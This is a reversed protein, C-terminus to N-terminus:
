PLPLRARMTISESRTVYGLHENLRRMDDNGRQTWTCVEHIGNVAAFALATRKLASAVGRGRWDRRVATLANEARGTVDADRVLGSIGIVEEGALAVFTAEPWRLWYREWQELSVEVPADLALDAFAQLALPDYAERWLEPRKAVSVIRVGEPASPAPEDGLARVQEVERDVEQFGFRGAFARSGSDVVTTRAVTFGLEVLHDVLARLLLTGVGRRRAAPLVRPVLFGAPPMDSRGAVGSGVVEGDAEALLWLTEGTAAARMEDVTDARENPVVALRVRRWAELEADGDVRRVRAVAATPRATM